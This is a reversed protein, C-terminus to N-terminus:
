WLRWTRVWKGQVFCNETACSSQQHRALLFYKSRTRRSPSSVNAVGGCPRSAIAYVRLRGMREASRSVHPPRGATTVDAVLDLCARGAVEVGGSTLIVQEQLLLVKAKYLHLRFAFETQEASGGSGSEDHQQQRGSDGGGGSFAVLLVTRSLVLFHRPPSPPIPPSPLLSSTLGGCM